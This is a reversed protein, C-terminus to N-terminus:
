RVGAALTSHKYTMWGAGTNCLLALADCTFRLEVPVGELDRRARDLSAPSLGEHLTAHFHYREGELEHPRVGFGTSLDDVLRRRLAELRGTPVVDLFIIGQDFFGFNKLTIQFPEVEAALRDFYAEFPELAPAVFGQKLTIHPGVVLGPNAGYDRQLQLQLRRMRNHPEGGVPVVYAVSLAGADHRTGRRGLM